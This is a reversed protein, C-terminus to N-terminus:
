VLYRGAALLREAIRRRAAVANVPEFKTFRKLVALNTRLADGESCAALVNRAASEVIEMAERLFVACVDAAIEGKHLNALKRARLEVSEMVFANMAIDTISALVEQQDELAAGYKQYAIGLAFLAAKKANDVLGATAPGALIEAQLKKVAEVLPLQGRQARKLLMGTALLRNIENTGEFIRNIRSDRYAREVAYDQHFGYGGHIQVGEDVVYDLMESAYIKIYSCEAAFEEVAKLETEAADPQDWSFGELYSEILGVTRYTASETAFIRIAMEALKHQILGFEAISKGFAKREQAYKISVRLVEKSGGCAFAGLKLRGINLINFAIIHGRGIEGLVNEVPVPVSDLYIATTSSGKIGMKKEEAGSSLGPFKREVLFATFKDGDIKAFITFFDAAGGNTIWMKQGNLIYHKGDPSLDARTRAALADSGAQPESLAYAAVLEATALKPLYRRKQDETGFLLLPLAGIGTQGGHWAAYSGDKAVGEAVLMASTLDMEMGGYKEPLLVGVLGLEGAKRLVSVAVGPEQHQMAEVNPAIEKTWFEETTHAIAQHEETFDEPSYFQEPTTPEILFSGGKHRTPSITSSAM